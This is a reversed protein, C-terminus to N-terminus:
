TEQLDSGGVKARSVVRRARAFANLLVADFRKAWAALMIIFQHLLM